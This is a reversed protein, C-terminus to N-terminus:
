AAREAQRRDEGESPFISERDALIGSLIESLKPDDWREALAHAAERSLTSLTELLTGLEIESSLEVPSLDFPSVATRGPAGPGAAEHWDFESPIAVTDGPKGYTGGLIVARRVLEDGGEVPLLECWTDGERLTWSKM